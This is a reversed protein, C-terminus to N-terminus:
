NHCGPLEVQGPVGAVSAGDAVGVILHIPAADSTGAYKPTSVRLTSLRDNTQYVRAALGM